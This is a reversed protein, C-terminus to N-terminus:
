IREFFVKKDVFECKSFSGKNFLTNNFFCIDYFVAETFSIKETFNSGSFRSIGMFKASHFSVSSLCRQMESFTFRDEFVVQSFVVDGVFGGEYFTVPSNFRCESFVGSKYFGSEYFDLKGDFQSGLFTTKEFFLAENFISKQRFTCRTFNVNGLFRSGAFFVDEPFERCSNNNWFDSIGSQKEKYTEKMEFEPFVYRSFNFDGKEVKYIRIRKWFEKVKKIDWTKIGKDSKQCWDKKDSKFYNEIEKLEM